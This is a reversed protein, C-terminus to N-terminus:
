FGVHMLFVKLGMIRGVSSSVSINEVLASENQDDAKKHNYDELM